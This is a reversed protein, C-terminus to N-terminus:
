CTKPLCIEALIVIMMVLVFPLVNLITSLLCLLLFPLDFIVWSCSPPQHTPVPLLTIFGHSNLEELARLAQNKAQTPFIRWRNELLSIVEDIHLIVDNPFYRQFLEMLNIAEPSLLPPTIPLAKVLLTTFLKMTTDNSKISHCDLLCSGVLVQRGKCALWAEECVHHFLSADDVGDVQSTCSGVVIVKTVSSDFVSLWDKIEQVVTRSDKTVDVMVVGLCDESLYRGMVMTVQNQLCSPLKYLALLSGSGLSVVQLGRNVCLSICDRSLGEHTPTTDHHARQRLLHVLSKGVQESGVLLVKPLENSEKPECESLKMSLETHGREKALDQAKKDENNRISPICRNILVEVAWQQDNMAALHLPTNGMDDTAMADIWPDALLAEVTDRHNTSIATHLPTWNKDGKANCDCKSESLLLRVVATHGQGAAAHLPTDSDCCGTNPDCHFDCLLSRVIDDHGAQAAVYLPTAGTHDREMPDYAEETILSKVERLLGQRCAAHLPHSLAANCQFLNSCTEQFVEIVETNKHQLALDLPTHGSCNKLTPDANLELLLFRVIDSLGRVCALHLPTQLKYDTCDIPVHHKCVLEQATIKEEVLVALHLPSIGDQDIGMPNLDFEAVLYNLLEVNGGNCAHHVISRGGYGKSNPSVDFGCLFLKVVENHCNLAALHIAMDSKQNRLFVNAKLESALVQVIDVRGLRAAIHLPTEGKSSLSDVPCDYLSVLVRVIKAHGTAAALHLPTLGESDKLMPNNSFKEILMEVMHLHGEICALHLPTRSRFGIEQSNYDFESILMSVVETHNNITAIHLVTNNQCTRARCDAKLETLLLRIIHPHGKLAALHLPTDQNANTSNIPCHYQLVLTRVINEHGRVAARHLATSGHSDKAMPDCGYHEILLKLVNLCGEGAALHIPPQTNSLYRQKPSYGCKDILVAVVEAHDNIVALDFGTCNGKTKNDAGLAHLLQVANTHGHMAAHHFPTQDEYDMCDAPCNYKSVLLQTIGPEGAAATCHLPTMGDKDEGVASCGHGEILQEVMALHGNECAYFLPTRGLVDKASADCSYQSILLKVVERQGRAAALHVPTRGCADCVSVDAHLKSVLLHAIDVLGMWAAWHLSSKGQSDCADVPIDSTALSLVENQEGAIVANHLPTLGEVATTLKIPFSLLAPPVQRKDIAMTLIDVVAKHGKADALVLATHGDCDPLSTDAGLSVLAQVVDSRGCVAARHLASQGHYDVADVPCGLEMVLVRVVEERGALAAIHLPMRGDMDRALFDCGFEKVLQLLLQTYGIESAYHLANRSRYCRLNTGCNYEQVLVSIMQQPGNIAAFHLAAMGSNTKANINAGLELLLRVATISNCITAHHLATYGLRDASDVSYRGGKVLARVEDLRGAFVADHLLNESSDEAM